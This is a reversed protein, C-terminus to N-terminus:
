NTFTSKQPYVSYRCIQLCVSDIYDWIQNASIDSYEWVKESMCFLSYDVSICLVDKFEIALM